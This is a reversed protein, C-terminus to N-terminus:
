IILLSNMNLPEAGGERNGDGYLLFLAPLWLQSFIKVPDISIRFAIEGRHQAATKWSGSFLIMNLLHKAQSANPQTNLASHIHQQSQLSPQCEQARQKRATRHHKHINPKAEVLPRVCWTLYISPWSNQPPPIKFLIRSLLVKNYLNLFFTTNRM